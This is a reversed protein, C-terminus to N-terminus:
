QTIAILQTLFADIEILSNLKINIFGTTIEQELGDVMITFASDTDATITLELGNTTYLEINM